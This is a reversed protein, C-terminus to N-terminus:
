FVGLKLFPVFCEYYSIGGHTGWENASYDSFLYPYTLLSYKRGYAEVHIVNNHIVHGEIYRKGKARPDKIVIYEQGSGIKPRWWIGHDAALYIIGFLGKERILSALAPIYENFLRDVFYAPAPRDRHRHAMEDCGAIIIQVFSKLLSKKQLHYIIEDFEHVRRMQEGDFTEFLLNTLEEDREWYSFGWRAKFGNKFLEYAIPPEGIINRFGVKTLTPGMVFCPRVGKQHRVDEYSLGDVLVLFVTDVDLDSLILPAIQRQTFALNAVRDHREILINNLASGYLEEEISTTPFRRYFRSDDDLILLRELDLPHPRDMKFIFEEMSKEVSVDDLYAAVLSDGRLVVPTKNLLRDLEILKM